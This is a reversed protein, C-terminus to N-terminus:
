PLRNKLADEIVSNSVTRADVEYTGNAIAASLQELWAAREPTTENSVNSNLAQLQEGLSSLHVQDGTETSAARGAAPSRETKEAGTTRQLQASGIDQANTNNIKM